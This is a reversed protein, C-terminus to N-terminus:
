SVRLGLRPTHPASIRCALGTPEFNLEVSGDIASALGRRLTQQGFGQRTPKKVKPGGMERWNFLLTPSEAEEFTWDVHVSGGEKSFAGYKAANTALEHTALSFAVAAEQSLLLKPGTIEVRHDISYPALTEALLDRLDSQGSKLALSHARALALLRGDFVKRFKHPEPHSKLTAYVIAGIAGFLNRIRHDLEGLLLEHKIETRRATLVLACLKAFEHALISQEKTLPTGRNWSVVFTGLAMGDRHFAPISILAELGHTAGLSRWLDSFRDDNAVDECVVTQGQFIALACSGPKDAVAIGRLADAYDVSLSPFIAHEFIQATRDLITVGAVTGPVEKEFAKCLDSIIEDAPVANAVKTFAEFRADYLFQSM